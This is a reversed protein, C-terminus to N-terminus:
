LTTLAYSTGTVWALVNVVLYVGVFALARAINAPRSGGYARQMGVITYLALVPAVGLLTALALAVGSLETLRLALGLSFVALLAFSQLHLAFVLHEVYTRGTGLYLLKLAGALLPLLVVLVVPVVSRLRGYLRDVLEQAEMAQLQEEKPRVYEDFWSAEGDPQTLGFRISTTGVREAETQGAKRLLEGGVYVNVESVDPPVLRFALFFVFSAFLYLRLPSVQSARKGALYERTLAGPRRLLPWLSRVVKSDVDVLSQLFDRAFQFLSGPLPDTSQGCAPCFAGPAPNGCNACPAPTPEDEPM